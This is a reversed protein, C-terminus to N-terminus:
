CCRFGFLMGSAVKLFTTPLEFQADHLVEYLGLSLGTIGVLLLSALVGYRLKAPV